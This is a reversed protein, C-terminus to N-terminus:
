GGGNPRPPELCKNIMKQGTSVMGGKSVKDIRIFVMTKQKKDRTFPLSGKEIRSLADPYVGVWKLTSSVGDRETDRVSRLGYGNLFTEWEQKKLEVEKSGDKRNVVRILNCVLLLTGHNLPSLGSLLSLAKWANTHILM